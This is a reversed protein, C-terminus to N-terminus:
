AEHAYWQCQHVKSYVSRSPPKGVKGKIKKRSERKYIYKYECVCMTRTHTHQVLSAKRGVKYIKQSVFVPQTICM